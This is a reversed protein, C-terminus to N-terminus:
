KPLVLLPSYIYFPQQACHRISILGSIREGGRLHTDRQTIFTNVIDVKVDFNVSGAEPNERDIVMEGSFDDFKGRM